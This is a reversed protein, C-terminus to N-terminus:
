QLYKFCLRSLHYNFISYVVCCLMKNRVGRMYMTKGIMLYQLKRILASRKHYEYILFTNYYFLITVLPMHHRLLLVNLLYFTFHGSWWQTARLHLVVGGGKVGLGENKGRLGVGDM